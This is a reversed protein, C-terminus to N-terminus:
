TINLEDAWPVAELAGKKQIQQAAAKSAFEVAHRIDWTGRSKQRVFDIAYAGVFTDRYLAMLLLVKQCLGHSFISVASCYCKLVYGAGTTDVVKAVKEAPVHGKSGDASAYFAGNEGLTLVANQVGRGLFDEVVEAWAAEGDLAEAERGTLIAAETENLILHTAARYMEAPLTSAPAPNLLTDATLARAMVLTKEVTERSLELQAVVLGPANHGGLEGGRLDDILEEPNLHHNAGPAYMIRNQGKAAEVVIVSVGTATGEVTRVGAVDVLNQRLADILPPGFQDNGVAGIMRVTIEDESESAARRKTGRPGTTAEAPKTADNPKAHSLRAAAVAANAGKGGPQTRFSQSELTEGADPLRDTVTVLDTNLSGVVAIISRMKPIPLSLEPKM